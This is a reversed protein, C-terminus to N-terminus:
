KLFRNIWNVLTSVEAAAMQTATHATSHTLGAWRVRRILADVESFNADRDFTPTHLLVARPAPVPPGNRPVPM